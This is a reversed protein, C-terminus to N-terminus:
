KRGIEVLWSSKNLEKTKIEVDLFRKIVEINTTTHRSLVFTVFSGEGALALPILLQDALYEGVPVNAALYQRAMKVAEDAVAEAKVGKAGFGTFVETVEASHLEIFVVNGASKANTLTDIQLCNEDWSMKHAIMQLEREGINRPLMSLVACARRTHVDGREILEFGHLKKVPEISVSIKGGGAPYFGAQHLEMKVNVGTRNLQPIFAKELFNFPPAYPNHTGGELILNSPKNACLLAPLVTQLVLSTSGATGVAFSYDGPVVKGPTFSLELSGIHLGTTQANGIEAAAKIATLHQRMLGPNKRKARIKEIRFPKGTILSLAVSTRLIQGGGEGFSGDIVIM